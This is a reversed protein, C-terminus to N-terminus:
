SKSPKDTNRESRAKDIVDQMEEIVKKRNKTPIGEFIEDEIENLREPPKEEITKNIHLNDRKAWEKPFRRSLISEAARWDTEIASFMAAALIVHGQATARSISEFFEFKLKQTDDLKKFEKQIIEGDNGTVAKQLENGESKWRYFTVESIGESMAAYKATCGTKLKKTIEDIINKNLKM